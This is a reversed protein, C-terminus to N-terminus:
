TERVYPYDIEIGIKRRGPTDSLAHLTLTGNVDPNQRIIEILDELKEILWLRDYPEKM